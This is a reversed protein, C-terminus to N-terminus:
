RNSEAEMNINGDKWLESFCFPCGLGDLQMENRTLPKATTAEQSTQWDVERSCQNVQCRCRFFYCDNWFLIPFVQSLFKGVRCRMNGHSDRQNLSKSFFFFFPSIFFLGTLKSKLNTKTLFGKVFCRLSLSLSLSLSPGGGGGVVLSLGSKGVQGLIGSVATM